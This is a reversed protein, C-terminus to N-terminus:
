EELVGNAYVYLVIADGVDDVPEAFTSAAMEFTAALVGSFSLPKAKYELNAKAPARQQEMVWPPRVGTSTYTKSRDSQSASFHGCRKPV